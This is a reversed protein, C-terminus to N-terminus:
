SACLTMRSIWEGNPLKAGRDRLEELMEVMAVRADNREMEEAGAKIAEERMERWGVVRGNRVRVRGLAGIPAEGMREIRERLEKGEIGWFRNLDKSLQEFPSLKTPCSDSLERQVFNFWEDYGKPPNRGERKKYQKVADRM